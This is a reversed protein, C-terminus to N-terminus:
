RGLSVLVATSTAADQITHRAVAVEALTAPAVNRIYGRAAVLLAGVIRSGATIAAATGAPLEVTGIEKVACTGDAEVSELRGLVALADATLRVTRNGSLMVARGVVASGNPQAADFVIDAGDILYTFNHDPLTGINRTNTTRVDTM